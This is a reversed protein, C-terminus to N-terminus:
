FMLSEFLRKVLAEKPHMWDYFEETSANVKNPNFGGVVKASCVKAVDWISEEVRGLHQLYYDINEVKAGNKNGNQLQYVGPHHPPIFFIPRHGREVLKACFRELANKYEHSYLYTPLKVSGAITDAVEYSSRDRFSAHYSVSGDCRKLYDACREQNCVELFPHSLHISKLAIKNQLHAKSFKNSLLNYLSRIRTALPNINPFDLQFEDVTGFFQKALVPWYNKWHLPDFIWGDVGIVVAKPSLNRERYLGYTAIIDELGGRRLAHNFFSFNPFMNQRIQLSTSSGLVIVDKTQHFRKVCERQLLRDDFTVFGESFRIGDGALLRQAIISEYSANSIM